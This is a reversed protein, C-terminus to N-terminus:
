PRRMDSFIAQKVMPIYQRESAKDYLRPVHEKIAERAWKDDIFFDAMAEPSSLDPRSMINPDKEWIPQGDKTYPLRKMGHQEAMLADMALKRKREASAYHINKPTRTFKGAQEAELNEFEAQHKNLTNVLGKTGGYFNRIIEDYQNLENRAADIRKKNWGAPSGTQGAERDEEFKLNRVLKDRDEVKELADIYKAVRPSKEKLLDRRTTLEGRYKRPDLYSWYSEAWAVDAPVGQGLVKYAGIGAEIIAEGALGYIGLWSRLASSRAGTEALKLMNKAQAPSKINKNKINAIGKNFCDTDGGTGFGVRGGAALGPCGIKKILSELNKKYKTEQAATLEPIDKFMKKTKAVGAKEALALKEPDSLVDQAFNYVNKYLKPANELDALLKSKGFPKAGWETINGTKTVGGFEIPAMNEFQKLAKFQDLLKKNTPDKKLKEIVDIRAKDFHRKFTNVERPIPKVRILNMPNEGAEIMELFGFPIVHDLNMGLLPVKERLAKTVAFYNNMKKWAAVYEERPRGHYADQLLDYMRRQYIDEFDPSNRITTTVKKLLDIDKPLYIGTGTGRKRYLDGLLEGILGNTKAKSWGFNKGIKELSTTNKNQIYDFIKKRDKITGVKMKGAEYSFEKEFFQEGKTEIIYNKVAANSTYGSKITIAELTPINKLKLQQDIIKRRKNLEGVSIRKQGFQPVRGFEKKIDGRKVLSNIASSIKNQNLTKDLKTMKSVITDIDDGANTIQILKSRLKDDNLIKIGISQKGPELINTVKKWLKNNDRQRVGVDLADAKLPQGFKLQSFEKKTLNEKLLNIQKQSLKIGTSSHPKIGKKSGYYMVGPEVLGGPKFYKRTDYVRGGRNFSGSSKYRLYEEWSLDPFNKMWDLKQSGYYEKELDASGGPTFGIRGGDKVQPGVQVGEERILDQINPMPAEELAGYTGSTGFPLSAVQQESGYLQNMRKIYTLIDM